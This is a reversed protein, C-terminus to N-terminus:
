SNYFLGDLNNRAYGRNTNSIHPSAISCKMHSVDNRYGEHNVMVQEQTSATCYNCCPDDPLCKLRCVREQARGWPFLRYTACQMKTQAKPAWWQRHQDYCATLALDLSDKPACPNECKKFQFSKTPICALRVHPNCRLRVLEDPICPVDLCHHNNMINPWPVPCKGVCIPM